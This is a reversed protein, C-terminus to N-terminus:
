DDDEEEEEEKLRKLASKRQITQRRAAVKEEKWKKVYDPNKEAFETQLKKSLAQYKLKTEQDITKWMASTVKTVQHLDYEPHQKRIEKGYDKAFLVFSNPPFRENRGRKGRVKKLQARKEASEDNYIKKEEEPLEKWKSAILRSIQVNSLEPNDNTVDRRVTKNYLFFPNYQCAPKLSNANQTKRGRELEEKLLQYDEEIRASSSANDESDENDSFPDDPDHRAKKLPASTQAAKAENKIKRLLLVKRIEANKADIPGSKRPRGRRRKVPPEITEILRKLKTKLPDEKPPPASPMSVKDRVSLSKDAHRALYLDPNKMKEAFDIMNELPDREQRSTNKKSANYDEADLWTDYEDSAYKLKPKKKPKIEDPEYESASSGDNNDQYFDDFGDDFNEAEKLSPKPSTGMNQARTRTRTRPILSIEASSDVDVYKKVSRRKRLRSHPIMDESHVTSESHKEKIPPADTDSDSSLGELIKDLNKSAYDPRSSTSIFSSDLINHEPGMDDFLSSGRISSDMVSSGRISSNDVTNRSRRLGERGIKKSSLNTTKDYKEFGLETHTNSKLFDHALDKNPRDSTHDMNSSNHLDTFSDSVDGRTDTQDDTLVSAPSQDEDSYPDISEHMDDSNLNVM